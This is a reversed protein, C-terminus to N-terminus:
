NGLLEQRRQEQEQEQVRARVRLYENEAESSQNILAQRLHSAEDGDGLLSIM